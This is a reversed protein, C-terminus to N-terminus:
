PAGQPSNSPPVPSGSVATLTGRGVRLLVRLWLWYRRFGARHWGVVTEPKV